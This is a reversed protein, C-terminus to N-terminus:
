EPVQFMGRCLLDEPTVNEGQSCVDSRAKQLLFPLTRPDGAPFTSRAGSRNAEQLSRTSSPVFVHM